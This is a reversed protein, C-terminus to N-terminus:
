RGKIGDTLTTLFELIDSIESDSLAPPAGVARNFPVSKKEVYDHFNKPLDNFKLPIGNTDLPYWKEPQTDRQVLFSVADHLTKFRGNHFFVKRTAVNRLTPIKFSGCLDLRLRLDIRNPGCVGLDFYAADANAPIAVNRPVGLSAFGFTTFLPASGDAGLTSPHCTACNGKNADNFLILGHMETQTLTLKGKLYQDYKSDFSHFGSDELQYQQLAIGVQDFALDPHDFITVGFVKKFEESYVAKQVRSVLETKSTNAMEVMALLPVQVQKALSASRGDLNFGGIIHGNADIAPAPTSHQYRLSPVARFGLQNLDAGGLQVSLDNTQAHANNPNHCTSCAQAGSASLGRDDFIKEGLKALESLTTPRTQDPTSMGGSYPTGGGCAFLFILPLSIVSSRSYRRFRGVPKILGALQDVFKKYQM